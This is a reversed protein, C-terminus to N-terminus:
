SIKPPNTIIMPESIDPPIVLAHYPPLKKVIETFQIKERGSKQGVAKICDDDRTPWMVIWTAQRTSATPVWSPAQFATVVSVKKYRASILLKEAKKALNMMRKDAAIQFEDIYVTWGGNGNYISDLAKSFEVTLADFDAGKAGLIIRAPKGDAIDDWIKAPPPWSNIRQFGSAALTDDGGKPDLAVVYKRQKLVPVAFTTKGQGTPGVLAMHQGPKWHEKMYKLFEDWKMGAVVQTGPNLQKDRVTTM